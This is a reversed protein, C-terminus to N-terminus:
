VGLQSKVMEMLENLKEPKLKGIRLDIRAKDITMIDGGIIKSPDKDLSGEVLDNNTLQINNMPDIKRGDGEIPVVNVKESYINKRQNSIIVCLHNNNLETGVNDGSLLVNYIEGRYPRVPHMRKADEKKSDSHNKSKEDLRCKQPISDIIKKIKWQHKKNPKELVRGLRSKLDEIESDSLRDNKEMFM